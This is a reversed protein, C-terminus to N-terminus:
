AHQNIHDAAYNGLLSLLVIVVVIIVVVVVVAILTTKLCGSSSGRTIVPGTSLNPRFGASANADNLDQLKKQQRADRVADAQAQTGFSGTSIGDSDTDYYFKEPSTSMGTLPDTDDPAGM